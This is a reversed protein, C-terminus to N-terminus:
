KEKKTRRAKLSLSDFKGALSHMYLFVATVAAFVIINLATTILPETPGLFESWQIISHEPDVYFYLALAIIFAYALEIMLFAIVFPNEKANRLKDRATEKIIFQATFDAGFVNADKKKSYLYILYLTITIVALFLLATTDKVLWVSKSQFDIAVMSFVLYAFLLVLIGQIALIGLTKKGFKPAFDFETVQMPRPKSKTKPKANPKKKAKSKTKARAM